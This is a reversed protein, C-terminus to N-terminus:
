VVEPPENHTPVHISVFSEEGADDRRAIPIRPLSSAVWQFGLVVLHLSFNVVVLALHLLPFLVLMVPVATAALVWRIRM